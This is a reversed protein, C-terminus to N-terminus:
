RQYIPDNLTSHSSSSNSDEKTSSEDFLNTANLTLPANQKSDKPTETDLSELKDLEVHTDAEIQWQKL